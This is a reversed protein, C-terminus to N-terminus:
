PRRVLLRLILGRERGGWRWDTPLVDHEYAIIDWDKFYLLMQNRHYNAEDTTPGRGENSFREIVICGGHKVSQKVRDLGEWYPSFYFMAVLDWQEIGYDYSNANALEARLALGLEEARQRAHAIGVESLDIGTTEYGHQALLIANRGEGMGIDIARRPAAADSAAAAAGAPAGQAEDWGKIRALSAALFASPETNYVEAKTYIEDYRGPKKQPSTSPQSATAAAPQTAADDARMAACLIALIALSNIWKM